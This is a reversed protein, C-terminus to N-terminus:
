LKGGSDGRCHSKDNPYPNGACLMNKTINMPFRTEKSWLTQCFANNQGLYQVSHLVNGSGLGWGSVTLVKGVLFNGGMTKDPLCAVSVLDTLIVHSSLHLVGFDNDLNWSSFNEWSSIHCVKIKNGDRPDITHQGAWVEYDSPNDSTRFGTICHSATLVHM